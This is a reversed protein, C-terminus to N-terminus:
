DFIYDPLPTSTNQANHEADTYVGAIKLLTQPQAKLRDMIGRIMDQREIYKKRCIEGADGLWFGRTNEIINEIQNLCTEIEGIQRLADDARATLIETSVKITIDSGAM